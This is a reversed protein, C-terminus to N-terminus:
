TMAKKFDKIMKENDGMFVLDDVYLAVFLLKGKEKKV